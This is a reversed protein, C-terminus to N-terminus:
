VGMGIQALEKEKKKRVIIKVVDKFRELDIINEFSLKTKIKDNDVQIKDVIIKLNMENALQIILKKDKSNIDGELFLNNRGEEMKFSIKSYGLEKLLTIINQIKESYPLLTLDELEPPEPNQQGTM